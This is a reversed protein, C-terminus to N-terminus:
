YERVDEEALAKAYDALGAEALKGDEEAFEGYLAALQHEDYGSAQGIRSKSRLFALYQAVQHLESESLSDIQESVEKRVNM